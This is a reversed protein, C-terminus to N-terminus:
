CASRSASCRRRAARVIRLCRVASEQGDWVSHAWTRLHDRTEAVCTRGRSSYLPNASMDRAYRMEHTTAASDAIATRRRNVCVARLDARFAVASRSTRLIRLSVPRAPELHILRTRPRAVAVASKHPM